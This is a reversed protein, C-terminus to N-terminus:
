EPQSQLPVPDSAPLAVKFPFSKAPTADPVFPVTFTVLIEDNVSEPKDIEFPEVKPIEHTVVSGVPESLPTDISLKEIEAFPVVAVGSIAMLAACGAAPLM